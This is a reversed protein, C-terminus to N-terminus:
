EAKLEGQSDEDESIAIFIGGLRAAWEEAPVESYGALRKTLTADEAVPKTCGAQSCKEGLMYEGGPTRYVNVALRRSGALMAIVAICTWNPHDFGASKVYVHEAQIPVGEIGYKRRDVKSATIM